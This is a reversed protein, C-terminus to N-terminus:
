QSNGEAMVLNSGQSATGLMFVANGIALLQSSHESTLTCRIFAIERAMRLCSGVCIIPCDGPAPRLYDMRLDLTAISCPNALNLYTTLGACADALSLLVSNFTQGTSPDGVLVPSPRLRMRGENEKSPLIEFGLDLNHPVSRCFAEAMEQINPQSYPQQEVTM